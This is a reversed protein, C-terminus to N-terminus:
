DLVGVLELKDLRSGGEHPYIESGDIGCLKVIGEGGPHNAIFDTLDYIKGDLVTWCDDISFHQAVDELSYTPSSNEFSPAVVNGSTNGGSFALFLIVVLALVGGAVLYSKKM